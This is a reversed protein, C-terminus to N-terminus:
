RRKTFLERLSTGTSAAASRGARVTLKTASWTGNSGPFTWTGNMSVNSQLTGSFVLAFNNYQFTVRNDPSVTYTGEDGFEDQIVGSSTGGSFNMNFQYTSGLGVFTIRWLGRVDYQEPGDDGSDGKLVVLVLVAILAAAGLVLLIPFKKKKKKAPAAIVQKEEEPKTEVEPQTVPQTPGAVRASAMEQRKKEVRDRFELDTEEKQFAPYTEFVKALNEDVKQDEGVTYYVKALLYFAEAVNKKQAVIAKLKDIFNVLLNIAGEYDGQQYMRRAKLLEDSEDQAFSLQHSLSFGIFFVLTLIGIRRIWTKDTM